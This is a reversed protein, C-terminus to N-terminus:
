GCEGTNRAAPLSTGTSSGEGRKGREMSKARGFSSILEPPLFQGM